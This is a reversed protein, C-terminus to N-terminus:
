EDHLIINKSVRIPVLTGSREFPESLELNPPTFGPYEPRTDSYEPRVNPCGITPGSVGSLRESMRDDTRIRRVLARFSRVVLKPGSVLNTVAHKEHLYVSEPFFCHLIIIFNFLYIKGM